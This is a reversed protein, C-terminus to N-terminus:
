QRVAEPVLGIDLVVNDGLSLLAIGREDERIM